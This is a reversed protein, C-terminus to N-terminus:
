IKLVHEVERKLRCEKEDDEDPALHYGLYKKAFM